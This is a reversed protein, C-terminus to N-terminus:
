RGALIQELITPDKIQTDRALLLVKSLIEATKPDNDVFPLFLRGRHQSHVPVICVAGGPQQHVVASGLNVNYSALSGDILAYRGETRVNDIGLMSCTERILSSRMEVTSASAEPDVGGRHAVSVVLDLDRMVESFLRPPIENLPLRKFEGRRSFWVGELTLGEVEAPTLFGQLFELWASIGEEHFTRRVGEEPYNVWSRKGLLALAQRPNVQHGSYRHSITKETMEAETLLYLERFIQKFPQVREGKYCERQWHHWEQTAYLDCSHAIRLTDMKGLRLYEGDHYQLAAGKEVPYGIVDEGVFLLHRLMPTLVPHNFLEKLEVRNFYDGRCMAQELSLRIRSIQRKLERKRKQLNVIQPDKKLIKPVSRLTKEGKIIKIEPEGLQNISLTVTVEEVKV